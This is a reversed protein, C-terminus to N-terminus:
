YVRLPRNERKAEILRQRLESKMAQKLVEDGYEAGQMLYEVQEGITMKIKDMCAEM